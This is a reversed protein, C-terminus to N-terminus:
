CYSRIFCSCSSIYNITNIIIFYGSFFILIEDPIIYYTIDSVSLIILLSIIGLAILLNGSIGFVFFSLAYLIGSFIEMYTSLGSFKKHCYRCRGKLVIYSIVPVMDWVGLTHHCHDCHSRTKIFDQHKPLRLGIVTYFSGMHLGLIFFIILYITNM